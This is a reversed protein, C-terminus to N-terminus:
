SKTRKEFSERGKQSKKMKAKELKKLKKMEEKLAKDIHDHDDARQDSRHPYKKEDQDHGNGEHRQHPFQNKDGDHSQHLGRHEADTDKSQLMSAASKRQADTMEYYIKEYKRLDSESVSQAGQTNVKKAISIYEKIQADTVGKQQAYTKNAFLFFLGIVLPLLLIKKFLITSNSKSTTMMLFRKKTISYNINSALHSNSNMTAKALLLQQYRPVNQHSTIAVEDALFEHNLRIANKLFIILPNFWFIIHLIEVLLIDFSHKQHVHALEHTM